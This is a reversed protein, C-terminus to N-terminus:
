ESAYVQTIAYHLDGGLCIHLNPYFCTYYLEIINPGNRLYKFLTSVYMYHPVDYDKEPSPPHRQQKM